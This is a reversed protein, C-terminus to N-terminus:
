FEYSRYSYVQQNACSLVLLCTVLEYIASRLHSFRVTVAPLTVVSYSAREPVGAGLQFRGCTEAEITLNHIGVATPLQEQAHATFVACATALLFLLVMGKLAVLFAEVAEKACDRPNPRM